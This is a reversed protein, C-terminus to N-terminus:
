EIRSVLKNQDLIPLNRLLIGAMVVSQVICNPTCLILAITRLASVPVDSYAGKGVRYHCGQPDRLLKWTVYM